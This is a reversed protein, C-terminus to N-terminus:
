IMPINLITVSYAPLAISFSGGVKVTSKVPVVSRPADITNTATPTDAKLQICQAKAGVKAAGRLTIDVSNSQATVNVLKLYINGTHSDATASYYIQPADDGQKNTLTFRPINSSEVPVIKDGLNGAFMVQAYYSPSGYASLADYGILDSEWQMGGKSVNVFLPAYCSAIVLDSNRELCTMWAADGLAANMNTTPKGERTAWEGCFIKPGKRDYKDYQFAQRYMENADRYYHEDTIDLRIKDPDAANARLANGDITSILQLQPYRAKIADYFRQYRESYSGSVDFFDENGIEVYHLPFPAPHGDRIRQAGWKTSADGIVYEIEDLADNIFPQLADGTVYDGNLTYGAFVALLPEAGVDEAWQMFELLGLGDTSWYGWPSPHGPRADPEGVTNKWNFRDSFRGGELYNGGPFRLFKPNMAHMMTMLDPRLGNTRNNFTPPFLKVHTLSYEGAEPFTIRFCVDKTQEVKKGISFTFQFKNWDASVKDIVTKAYVTKGDTSELSVTIPSNGKAYLSGTFVTNPRVPIGWFGRNIISLGPSRTIVSLSNAETKSQRPSDALALRTGFVIHMSANVTDSLEWFKPQTPLPHFAQRPQTTECFSPNRLLQAYLGGEYSYNIEETMLGYLTPSVTKKADGVNLTLKAQASMSLASVAMLASLLLKKNM